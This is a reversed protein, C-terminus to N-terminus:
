HRAVVEWFGATDLAAAWGCPKAHLAQILLLRRPRQAIFMGLLVGVIVM